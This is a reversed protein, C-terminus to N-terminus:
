QMIEEAKEFIDIWKNNKQYRIASTDNKFYRYSAFMEKNKDDIKLKITTEDYIEVDKVLM